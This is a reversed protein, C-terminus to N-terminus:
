RSSELRSLVQKLLRKEINAGLPKYNNTNNEINYMGSDFSEFPLGCSIARPKVPKAVTHVVLIPHFIIHKGHYNGAHKREYVNTTFTGINYQTERPGLFSFQGRTIGNNLDPPLEKNM